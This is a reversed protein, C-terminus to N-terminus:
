KLIHQYNEIINGALGQNSKVGPHVGDLAIDVKFVMLNKESITVGPLILEDLEKRMMATTSKNGPPKIMLAKKIGYHNLLLNAHNVYLATSYVDDIESHLFKYYVKCIKDTSWPALKIVRVSDINPRLANRHSRILCNREFYSWQIVVSDEPTILESHKIFNWLIEKNSAGCIGHNVVDKKLVEGIHSVWGLKSPNPGPARKGEICDPLGHGYTHSCGFAFLKAM